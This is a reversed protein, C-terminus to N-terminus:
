AGGGVLVLKFFYAYGGDRFGIDSFYSRLCYDIIKHIGSKLTVVVRRYKRRCDVAAYCVGVAVRSQVDRLRSFSEAFIKAAHNM